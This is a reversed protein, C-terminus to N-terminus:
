LKRQKSQKDVECDACIYYTGDSDNGEVYAEEGVKIEGRCIRCHQVKTLTVVKGQNDM